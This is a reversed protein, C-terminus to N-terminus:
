EARGWTKMQRERGTALDAKTEMQEVAVYM